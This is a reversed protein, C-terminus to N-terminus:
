VMLLPDDDAVTHLTFPEWAGLKDGDFARIKVFSKGIADDGRLFLNDIDAAAIRYPTDAAITRGNFVFNDRGSTDLVEYWQAADGARDVLTLNDELSITRGGSEAFVMNEVALLPKQGKPTSVVNFQEWPSWGDSDEAKFLLQKRLGDEATRLMLSGLDDADITIKKDMPTLMRGNLSFEVMGSKDMIKYRTPADGDTRHVSVEGAMRQWSDPNLVVTDVVAVPATGATTGGGSGGSGGSGTGGSGSGGSGSGGSGSGGSGSGSGGSGSGGSGSGGSGSGTDLDLSGSTYAFNQTVVVANWGNYDGIEIGIGIVEYNPNLINARHGSSNMLNNHLDIVDDAYGAAGRESQLAINEGWGWGGSFDFDAASMRQGASSGGAGTHSFIDTALMWSSHDEASENLNLELQLPNLGRSTREQNILELMQRELTSAQSM